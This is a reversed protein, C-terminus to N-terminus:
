LPEGTIPGDVKWGDAQNLYVIPLGLADALAREAVAGRSQEWNPLMALMDAQTCIWETDLRFVLRRFELAAMPDSHGNGAAPLNAEEGKEAPNFVEHGRQRLATAAHLFAPFNWEKYGRMPGALYIKM